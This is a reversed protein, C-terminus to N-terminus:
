VRAIAPVFTEAFAKKADEYAVQACVGAHPANEGVLTALTGGALAFAISVKRDLNQFFARPM